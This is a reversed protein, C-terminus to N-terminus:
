GPVLIVATKHTPMSQYNSYNNLLTLDTKYVNIM